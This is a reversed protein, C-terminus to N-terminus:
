KCFEKLDSSRCIAYKGNICLKILDEKELWEINDFVCEIILEGTLDKIGYKNNEDIVIEYVSKIINKNANM